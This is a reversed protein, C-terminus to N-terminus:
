AYVDGRLDGSTQTSELVLPRGFQNNAFRDQLAVYRAHLSNADQAVAAPLALLGGLLLAGIRM